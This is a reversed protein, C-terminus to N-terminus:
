IHIKYQQIKEHLNIINNIKVYFVDINELITKINNIIITYYDIHIFFKTSPKALPIVKQLNNKLKNLITILEQTDRTYINKFPELNVAVVDQIYKEQNSQDDMFLQTRISEQLTEIKDDLSNIEPNELRLGKAM